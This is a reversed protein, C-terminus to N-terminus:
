QLDSLVWSTTEENWYYRQNDDPYPIPAIWTWTAEDMVWSAYNQPYIFVDNDPDYFMGIGGYNGRFAKEPTDSLTGEPTLHTNQATNYSTRKCILGDRKTQYYEEWSAFGNPLNELDDEDRGTIVEVVQFTNPNIFSYHAM